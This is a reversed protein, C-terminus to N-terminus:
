CAIDTYPPFTKLNIVSVRVTSFLMTRVLQEQVTGFGTRLVVALCGDPTCAPEELSLQLFKTGGSLEANKHAGDVDPRVDM